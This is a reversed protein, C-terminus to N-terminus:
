VSIWLGLLHHLAALKLVQLIPIQFLLALYLNFRFLKHLGGIYLYSINYSNECTTMARQFSLNGLTYINLVLLSVCDRVLFNIPYLFQLGLCLHHLFSTFLTKHSFFSIFIRNKACTCSYCFWFFHLIHSKLNM